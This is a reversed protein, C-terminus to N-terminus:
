ISKKFLELYRRTQLEVGYERKVVDRCNKGLKKRLADDTLLKYISKILGITDGRKILFGTTSRVMDSIGGTNFAVVPTKCAMSEIITTPFNDALSPAVYVDAASYIEVMKAEKEVRERTVVNFLVKSKVEAARHGVILLTIKNRLNPHKHWLAKMSKKFYLLGKVSANHPTALSLIVRHNKSIGLNDKALNKNIPKIKNFDLGNPIWYNKTKKFFPSKKVCQYLWYSPSITTIKSNEIIRKKIKWNIKSFDFKFGLWSKTIQPCKGCGKEWRNCNTMNVTCLGTIPWIDHLTWFVPKIASIKPMFIFPIYNRGHTWHLNIVDPNFKNISKFLPNQYRYVDFIFPFKSLLSLTIKKIQKYSNLARFLFSCPIEINNKNKFTLFPNKITLLKVNHGKQKLGAKLRLMANAGSSSPDYYSSIFLIRM